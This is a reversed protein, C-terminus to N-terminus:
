TRAPRRPRRQAAYRPLDGFRVPRDLRKQEGAASHRTASTSSDARQTSVTAQLKARSNPSIWVERWAPPIALAETRGLRDDDVPKGLSDVYRFRRKSVRRWGGRRPTLCRRASTTRGLRRPRAANRVLDLPRHEESSRVYGPEM